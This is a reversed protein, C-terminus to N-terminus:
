KGQYCLLKDAQNGTQIKTWRGYVTVGQPISIDVPCTFSGEAATDGSLTSATLAMVAVFVLGDDPTAASNNAVKSGYQGFAVQQPNNM